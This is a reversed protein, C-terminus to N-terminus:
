GNNVTKLLKEIPKLLLYSTYANRIKKNLMHIPINALSYITGKYWPFYRSPKHAIERNVFEVYNKDIVGSLLKVDLPELPINRLATMDLVNSFDIRQKPPSVIDLGNREFFDRQWKRGERENHPLNMMSMCIDFDLFPSWAQFGRTAPIKILYSLLMLKTRILFIIQWREDALKEKNKHYFGEKLAGPDAFRCVRDTIQIGHTLGLKSLEKGSSILPLEVSGAWADGVIGSLVSGQGVSNRIIDYFEMQYMGHLHVSPGYIEYWEDCLKHFDGLYIQEWPLGNLKAVQRANYVEFSDKQLQSVGYTYARTDESNRLAYALLRSDYGGSLPLIINGQQGAWERTVEVIQEIVESGKTEYKGLVHEVPDPETTIIIKEGDSKIRSNPELFKVNKIMTQGLVSYGFQLYNNLGEPDFEFNNYDIVELINDSILNTKENYFIPTSGLWDTEAENLLSM